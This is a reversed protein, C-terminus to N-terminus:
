RSKASCASAVGGPERHRMTPEFAGPVRVIRVKAKAAQLEERAARLMADVYEGNYRSAVIAFTGTATRQKRVRIRKLM